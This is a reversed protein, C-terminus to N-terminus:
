REFARLQAVFSTQRSRASNAKSRIPDSYLALTFRQEVNELIAGYEPVKSQGWQEQCVM